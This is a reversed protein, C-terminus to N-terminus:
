AKRIIIYEPTNPSLCVSFKADYKKGQLSTHVRLNMESPEQDLPIRFSEGAQMTAYPYASRDTYAKQTLRTVLYENEKHRTRSVSYHTGSLLSLAKCYARLSYDSLDASTYILCRSNLTLEQLQLPISPRFIHASM